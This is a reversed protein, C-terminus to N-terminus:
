AGGAGCVWRTTPMMTPGQPHISQAPGQPHIPQAPGQPHIPQAPGQPHISQASILSDFGEPTTSCLGDALHDVERRQHHFVATEGIGTDTGEEFCQLGVCEQHGKAGGCEQHGKAGVCEQHGKAIGDSEKCDDINSGSYGWLRGM